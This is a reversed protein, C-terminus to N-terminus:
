LCFNYTNIKRGSVQVNPRFYKLINYYSLQLKHDVLQKKRFIFAINFKFNLLSNGQFACKLMVLSVTKRQIMLKRRYTSHMEYIGANIESLKFTERTKKAITPTPHVDIAFHMSISALITQADDFHAHRLPYVPHVQVSVVVFISTLVDCVFIFFARVCFFIPLRM